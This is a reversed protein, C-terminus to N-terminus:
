WDDYGMNTASKNYKKAKIKYCVFGIAAAVLVLFAVGAGIVIFLETEGNMVKTQFDADEEASAVDSHGETPVLTPGDTETDGIISPEETPREGQGDGETTPLMVTPEM